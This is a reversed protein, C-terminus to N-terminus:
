NIKSEVVDIISKVSKMKIIDQIELEISYSKEITTVLDMQKLSDWNYIDDKTMDIKIKEKKIGFVESLIELLKENM